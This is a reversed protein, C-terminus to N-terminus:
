KTFMLQFKKRRENNPNEVASFSFIYERRRLFWLSSVCICIVHPKYMYTAVAVPINVLREPRKEFDIQFSFLLMLICYYSFLREGKRKKPATTITNTHATSSATHLHLNCQFWEVSALLARRRWNINVVKQCIISSLLLTFYVKRKMIRSAMKVLFLFFLFHLFSLRLIFCCVSITCEHTHTHTPSYPVAAASNTAPRDAVTVFKVQLAM